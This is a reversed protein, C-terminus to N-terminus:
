AARAHRAEKVHQLYSEAQAAEGLLVDFEPLDQDWEILTPQAGFRALADQYLRWVDGCVPRSHTDILLDDVAEFGALHMEGVAAVPIGRLFERADFGHNCASVHINNVDLLLQCGSRRSVEALFEWESFEDTRFRLYSSVNELLLPRRLTDQVQGIHDCVHALAAHTYSLPLLDNLFEDGVASWCLHESVAVPEIREILRALKALHTRSPDQAAGLSLGVGHLSIPYDRRLDVLAALATGGEAFYNESHVEFWAVAPREAVVQAVHPARLGIGAHRPLSQGSVDAATTRSM